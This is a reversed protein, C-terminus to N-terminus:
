AAARYGPFLKECERHFSDNPRLGEPDRSFEPKIRALVHM